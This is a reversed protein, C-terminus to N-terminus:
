RLTGLYALLAQLEAADLGGPPMRAGPKVGQPDLIWGALHGTTNPLVGAALMKRSAVHTLDPGVRSGAPTGGIAHCMVCPGRLFVDRGRRQADTAPPPAPRRQAALWAEFAAPPEAVVVLRMHAHQYGCFEACQGIYVGPRDAQLTTEAVQGPIMDTKGHLAPVWFSHIVDDSRVRVRVPRGVPIHVENATVVLNAPMPDHYRVDWWWQRGTIEILPGSPASFAGVARGTLVSSVLLVVLILVTLGVAVAVVRTAGREAGEPLVRAAPPEAAPARAGAVARALAAVVLLWVLGLVAFLTWWLAAIRAAQPGAADLMSGANM